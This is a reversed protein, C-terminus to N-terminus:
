SLPTSLVARSLYGVVGGCRVAAAWPQVGSIFWADSLALSIALFYGCSRVAGMEDSFKMDPGMLSGRHLDLSVPRERECRNERADGGQDM